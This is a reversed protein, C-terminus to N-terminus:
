AAVLNKARLQDCRPCAGAPAFRGGRGKTQCVHSLKDSSNAADHVTELDALKPTEQVVPTNTLIIREQHELPIPICAKEVVDDPELSLESKCDAAMPLAMDEIKDLLRVKLDVVRRVFACIENWKEKDQNLDVYELIHFFPGEETREGMKIVKGDPMRESAGRIFKKQTPIYKAWYKPLGNLGELRINEVLREPLSDFAIVKDPFGAKVLRFMQM